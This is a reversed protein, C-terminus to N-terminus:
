RTNADDGALIKDTCCPCAIGIYPDVDSDGRMQAEFKAENYISSANTRSCAPNHISGDVGNAHHDCGTICCLKAPPVDREMWPIVFNAIVAKELDIRKRTDARGPLKPM